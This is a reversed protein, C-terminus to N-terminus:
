GATTVSCECLYHTLSPSDEYGAASEPVDRGPRRRRRDMRGGSLPCRVGRFVFGLSTGLDLIKFRLSSSGSQVRLVRM